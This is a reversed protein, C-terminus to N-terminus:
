WFKFNLQLGVYTSKKANAGAFQPRTQRLVFQTDTSQVVKSDFVQNIKKSIAGAPNLLFLSVSGLKKSGMVRGGNAEIDKYTTYFVEGLLSGLVPTIILDQISPKEAVAELGYEWFFTSMMFTYIASDLRSYNMHRAVVYYAAGSVTHGIWNVAWEDKDIVPKHKVNEKWKDLLHSDQDKDWQTLKEPLAALFLMFGAGMIGFNFTEQALGPESPRLDVDVRTETVVENPGVPRVVTVSVWPFEKNPTCLQHIDQNTRWNSLSLLTQQAKKCGQPDLTNIYLTQVAAKNFGLQTDRYVKQWQEKTLYQSMPNGYWPDLKFDAQASNFILVFLISTLFLKKM